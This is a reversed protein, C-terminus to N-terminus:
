AVEGCGRCSYLADVDEDSLDPLEVPAVGPNKPAFEFLESIRDPRPATGTLLELTPLHQQLSTSRPYSAGRLADEAYRERMSIKPMINTSNEGPIDDEKESNDFNDSQPQQSPEDVSRTVLNKDRNQETPFTELVSASPQGHVTSADSEQDEIVIESPLIPRQRDNPKRQFFQIIAKPRFSRKYVTATFLEDDFSFPKYFLEGSDSTMVSDSDRM